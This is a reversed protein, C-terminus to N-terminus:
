LLNLAVFDMCAIKISCSIGFGSRSFLSLGSCLQLWSGPVSHSFYRVLLHDFKFFRITWFERDILNDFQSAATIEGSIM